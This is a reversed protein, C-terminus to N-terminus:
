FSAEFYYWCDMIKSTSGQNDGETQWEWYDHGNQVLKVETNQFALPLDEPSYYCGYYTDGIISIIFETMEHEKEWSNVMKYGWFVTEDAPVGNGAVLADEILKHYSHVFITTRFKPNALIVGLILLLVIGIVVFRKLDEKRIKKKLKM